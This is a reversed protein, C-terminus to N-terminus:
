DSSSSSSGSDSSSSGSDYSSGGSDYGSSGSSYDAPASYDSQITQSQHNEGGAANDYATAEAKLPQNDEYNGSSYEDFDNDDALTSSNHHFSQAPGGSVFRNKSVSNRRRFVVWILLALFAIGGFIALFVVITATVM